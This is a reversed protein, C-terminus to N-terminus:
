AAMAARKRRRAGAGVLGFGIVMMAWSAPEPVASEIGAVAFGANALRFIAGGSYNPGGGQVVGFLNGQRDATLGAAPYYPQDYTPPGFEFGHVKTFVGSSTLSFVGGQQAQPNGQAVGWMTGNADFIIQGIPGQLGSGTFDFFTSLANSTVDYKFISGGGNYKYVLGYINGDPGIAPGGGEGTYGGTIDALKTLDGSASYRYLIAGFGSNDGTTSGYINGGADIAVGGRPQRGGITGIDALTTFSGNQYKFLTGGDYSVQGGYITQGYIAGDSGQALSGYAANGSSGLATFQGSTTVQFISGGNVNAGYFNGDSALVLRGVPNAGEQYDTLEKVIQVGNAASYKFIVGNTYTYTDYDYHGNALTGWLNGQTDFTLGQVGYGLTDRDFGGVISFDVAAASTSALLFFSAAGAFVALRSYKTM